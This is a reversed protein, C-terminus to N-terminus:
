QHMCAGAASASSSDDKFPRLSRKFEKSDAAFSLNTSCTLEDHMSARGTRCQGAKRQWAIGSGVRGQAGNGQGTHQATHATSHQATSHQATRDQATSHQATSFTSSYDEAQQGIEPVPMIWTM